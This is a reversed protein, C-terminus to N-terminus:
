LNADNATDIEVLSGITDIIYEESMTFEIPYLDSKKRSAFFAEGSEWRKLGIESTYFINKM